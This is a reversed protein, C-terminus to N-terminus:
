GTALLTMAAESTAAPEEDSARWIKPLQWVAVGVAAWTLAGGLIKADEKTLGSEKLIKVLGAAHSADAASMFTVAVGTAGARGTRGIRHVYDETHMPFEYNIVM